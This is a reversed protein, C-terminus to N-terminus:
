ATTSYKIEVMKTAGNLISISLLDHTLLFNQSTGPHYGQIGIEAVNITGGSGNTVMRSFILDVTTGVAVTAIAQASYQLQGSGVGNAIRANLQYDNATPATGSTGLAIGYTVDGVGASLRIVYSAPSVSVTGGAGGIYKMAIATASWCAYIWQLFQKTFSHCKRWEGYEISGDPKVDSVRMSLSIGGVGLQPIFARAEESIQAM